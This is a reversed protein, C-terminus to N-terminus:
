AVSRRSEHHWRQITQLEDIIPKPFGTGDARDERLLRELEADFAPLDNWLWALRNVVHPYYEATAYPSVGDPLTRLLDYGLRHLPEGRPRPKLQLAEHGRMMERADFKMAYM